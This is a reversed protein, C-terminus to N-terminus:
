WFIYKDRVFNQRVKLTDERFQPTVPIAPAGLQGLTGMVRQQLTTPFDFAEPGPVPIAVPLNCNIGAVEQIPADVSQLRGALLGESLEATDIWNKVGPDAASIVVFYADQKGCFDGGADIIAQQAPHFTPASQEAQCNGENGWNLSVHRNAWDASSGWFNSLQLGMYKAIDTDPLRLIVAAEPDDGHDFWMFMNYQTTIGLGGTPQWPTATAVPLAGKISDVFAPWFPGQTRFLDTADRIQQAQIAPDLPMSPVGETGLREIHVEGPVEESWDCHTHRRAIQLLRAQPLTLQNLWEPHKDLVEQCAAYAEWDEGLQLPTGDLNVMDEDELTPGGGTGESTDFTTLIFDVSNSRNGWIRWAVENGDADYCQSSDIVTGMYQTDPNDVGIRTDPDDFGVFRPRGRLGTGSSSMNNRNSSHLFASILDYAGVAHADDLRFTDSSIFQEQTNKVEKLYDQFAKNMAKIDEDGGPQGIGSGDAAVDDPQGVTLAAAAVLTVAGATQLVYRVLPRRPSINQQSM